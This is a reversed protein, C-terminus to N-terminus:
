DSANEKALRRRAIEMQRRRARAAADLRREAWYKDEETEDFVSRAAVYLLAFVMFAVLVIVIFVLLGSRATV